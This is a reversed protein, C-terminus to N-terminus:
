LVVEVGLLLILILRVVVSTIALASITEVVGQREMWAAILGPIIFGIIAYNEPFFGAFNHALMGLIYGVIIMLVTRRRGFVILFTGLTKVLAFSILSVAITLLVDWPRLLYLAIYGPVILGGSAVGFTETMLLGVALGIGISIPLIEIM